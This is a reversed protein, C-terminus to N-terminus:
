LGQPSFVTPILQSAHLWEAPFVSLLIERVTRLKPHESIESRAIRPKTITQM